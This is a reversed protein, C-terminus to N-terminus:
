LAKTEANFVFARTRPTLAYGRSTKVLHGREILSQVLVHARSHGKIGMQEAIWRIPPVRGTDAVHRIIVDRCERQRSTMGMTM